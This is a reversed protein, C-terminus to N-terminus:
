LGKTPNKVTQSIVTSKPLDPNSAGTSTAAQVMKGIPDASGVQKNSNHVVKWIAWVSSTLTIAAGGLSELQGSNAWGHAIIVPGFVLMLQRILSLLIDLSM